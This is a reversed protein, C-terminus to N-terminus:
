DNPQETLTLNFNYEARIEELTHLRIFMINPTLHGNKNLCTRHEKTLIKFNSLSILSPAINKRDKDFYDELDEYFFKHEYFDQNSMLFYSLTDRQISSIRVIKRVEKIHLIIESNTLTKM